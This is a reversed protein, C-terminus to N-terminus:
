WEVGGTRVPLSGADDGLHWCPATPARHGTLDAPSTPSCSSRGNSCRTASASTSRTATRTTSSCGHGDAAFGLGQQSARDVEFSQGIYGLADNVQSLPLTVRAGSREKITNSLNAYLEGPAATLALEDGIRVAAIPAEVSAPAASV